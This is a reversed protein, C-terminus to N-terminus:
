QKHLKHYHPQWLDMGGNLIGRLVIPSVDQVLYRPIVGDVGYAFYPSPESIYMKNYGADHSMNLVKDSYYGQPFCIASMEAGTIEELKDKADKLERRLDETSLKTMNNHSWGHSQFIFGKTQLDRIEELSLYGPKGILDVAIFVTPYISNEFFFLRNDWIGRFGDDFCLMVQNMPKTIHTVIKYGLKKIMDIHCLFLSWDTSMDTHLVESHVDHYFLVKSQRDRKLAGSLVCLLDKCVRKIM